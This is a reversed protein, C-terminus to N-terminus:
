CARTFLKELSKRQLGKGIVVLQSVPYEPKKEGAHKSIAIQRGHTQIIFPQEENRCWVLGKVRYIQHYSLFLVMSLQNLLMEKDFPSDIEILLSKLPHASTKGEWRREEKPNWRTTKTSFVDGTLNGQDVPVIEALGNINRFLNKLGLLYNATVLSKKNVVIVDAAALQRNIEPIENMWDEICSADAVCVIQQLEFFMSAEEQTFLAAIGGPDAVGSAEILLNDPKVDSRIISTLVDTLEDDLSCCICGNNLEFLSDYSSSVLHADISVKGFENEIVVNNENAKVQLFRNLVTTKGAGLFGTLLYVKIRTSPSKM